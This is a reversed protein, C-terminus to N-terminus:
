KNKTEDNSANDSNKKDANSSNNESSNQNLHQEDRNVYSKGMTHLLSMLIFIFIPIAFLLLIFITIYISEKEIKKNIM